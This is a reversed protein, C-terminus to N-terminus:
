SKSVVGRPRGGNAAGRRGGGQPAVSGTAADWVVRTALKKESKRAKIISTAEAASMGMVHTLFERVGIVTEGGGTVYQMLAQAKKLAIDARQLDTMANLDRWSVKFTPVMPLIGIKMFRDVVPYIVEPTLYLLQRGSLRKYWNGSDQTSALHGTQFGMFIPFPVGIAACILSIYQTMHNSPDAVQPTLTKVTMNQLALYRKLGNAYEDFQAKISEEDFEVTTTGDDLGPLSEFSYGPFAGRWFMEASGGGVKRTDFIYQAVAELRPVGYVLSSEKNDALHVVRTWHVLQNVAMVGTATGPAPSPSDFTGGSSIAGGPINPQVTHIQYLVPQLYRSSNPDANVSAISFSDEAFPMMYNLKREPPREPTANGEGDIGIAPTTLPLGDNIGILIIGCRGLGSCRDARHMVTIPNLGPRATLANWKREWPTIVGEDDSEYLEPYSLFCEDPYVDNTRKALGVTRYLERFYHVGPNLPYGCDENLDRRDPDLSLARALSTRNVIENAIFQRVLDRAKAPPKASM